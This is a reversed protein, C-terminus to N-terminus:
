IKVNAVPPVKKIMKSYDKNSLFRENSIYKEYNLFDKWEMNWVLHLSHNNSKERVFADGRILNQRSDLSLKPIVGQWFGLYKIPGFSKLIDIICHLVLSLIRIMLFRTFVSRRRVTSYIANSIPMLIPFTWLIRESFGQTECLTWSTPGM